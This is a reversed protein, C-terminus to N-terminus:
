GDIMAEMRDLILDLGLRLCKLQDSSIEWLHDDWRDPGGSFYRIVAQGKEDVNLAIRLVGGLAGTLEVTVSESDFAIKNDVCM